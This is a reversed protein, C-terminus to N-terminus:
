DFGIDMVIIRIAIGPVVNLPFIQPRPGTSFPEAFFTSTEIPAALLRLSGVRAPLNEM